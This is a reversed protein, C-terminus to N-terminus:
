YHVSLETVACALRESWGLANYINIIKYYIFASIVWINTYVSIYGYRVVRHKLLLMIAVRVNELSLLYHLISLCDYYLSHVPFVLETYEENWHKIKGWTWINQSVFIINIKWNVWQAARLRAFINFGLTKCHQSIMEKAFLYFFAQSLM